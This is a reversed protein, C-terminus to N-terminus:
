KLPYIKLSDLFLDFDEQYSSVVDKPAVCFLFTAKKENIGVVEWQTMAISKETYNIKLKAGKNNNAGVIAIKASELSVDTFSKRVQELVGDRLDAVKIVGKKEIATQSVICRINKNNKASFGYIFAANKTQLEQATMRDFNKSVNFSIGATEDEIEFYNKETTKENKIVKEKSFFKQYAFYAGIALAFIILFSLIILIIKKWLM